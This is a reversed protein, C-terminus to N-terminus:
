MLKNAETFFKYVGQLFNKIDAMSYWLVLVNIHFGIDEVLSEPSFKVLGFIPRLENM